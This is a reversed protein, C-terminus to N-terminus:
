VFSDMKGVELCEDLLVRHPDVSPKKDEENAIKGKIFITGFSKM